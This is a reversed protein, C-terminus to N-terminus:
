NLWQYIGCNQKLIQKIKWATRVVSKNLNLKVEICLCFHRLFHLCNSFLIPFIKQFTGMIWIYRSWTCSVYTSRGKTSTNNNSSSWGPIFTSFSYIKLFANMLIIIKKSFTLPIVCPVLVVVDYKKLM